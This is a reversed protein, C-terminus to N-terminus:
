CKGTVLLVYLCWNLLKKCSVNYTIINLVTWFQFGTDVDHVPYCIYIHCIPIKNVWAMPHSINHQPNCPVCTPTVNDCTIEEPCKATHWTNTHRLDHTIRCIHWKNEWQKYSQFPFWFHLEYASSWLGDIVKFNISHWSCILQSLTQWITFSSRCSTWEMAQAHCHLTEHHPQSCSSLKNV